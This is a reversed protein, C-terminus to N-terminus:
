PVATLFSNPFGITRSTYSRKTFSLDKLGCNYTIPINMGRGLKENLDLVKVLSDMSEIDVGSRCHEIVTM